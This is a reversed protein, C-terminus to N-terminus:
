SSRHAGAQRPLIPPNRPVGAEVSSSQMGSERSCASADSGEPDTIAPEQAFGRESGITPHYSACPDGSEKSGSFNDLVCVLMNLFFHPLMWPLKLVSCRERGRLM